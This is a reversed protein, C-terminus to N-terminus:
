GESETSGESDSVVESNEGTFLDKLRKHQRRAYQKGKKTLTKLKPAEKPLRGLKVALDIERTMFEDIQKEIEPDIVEVERDLLGADLAARYRRKQLPSVESDPLTLAHEIVKKMTPSQIEKKMLKSLLEQPIRKQIEQIVRLHKKQM